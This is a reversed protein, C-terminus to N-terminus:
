TQKKYNWAGEKLLQKCVHIKESNKTVIQRLFTFCVAIGTGSYRKETHKVKRRWIIISFESFIWTYSLDFITGTRLSNCFVFTFLLHFHFGSTLLTMGKGPLWNWLYLGLELMKSIGRKSKRIYRYKKLSNEFLYIEPVISQVFDM